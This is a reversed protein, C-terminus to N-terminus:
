SRELLAGPQDGNRPDQVVMSEFARHFLNWYHLKKPKVSGVIISNCPPKLKVMHHTPGIGRHLSAQKCPIWEISEHRLGTEEFCFQIEDYHPKNWRHKCAILFCPGLVGRVFAGGEKVWRERPPLYRTGSFELFTWVAFSASKGEIKANGHLDNAIPTRQCARRETSFSRAVIPLSFARWSLADTGDITWLRRHPLAQDAALRIRACIVPRQTETWILDKTLSLLIASFAIPIAEFVREHSVFSNRRYRGNDMYFQM